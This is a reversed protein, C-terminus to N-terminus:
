IQSVKRMVHGFLLPPVQQMIQKSPRREATNSQQPAQARATLLRDLQTRAEDEMVPDTGAKPTTGEDEWPDIQDWVRMTRFADGSFQARTRRFNDDRCRGM